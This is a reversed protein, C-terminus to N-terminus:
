QFIVSKVRLSERFEGTDEIKPVLVSIELVPIPILDDERQDLRSCESDPTDFNLKM